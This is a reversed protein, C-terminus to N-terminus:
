FKPINPSTRAGPPSLAKSVALLLVEKAFLPHGVGPGLEPRLLGFGTGQVRFGLGPRFGLGQVRFGSGQVRFGLGQVRFGLGQVRSPGRWLACTSARWRVTRSRLAM